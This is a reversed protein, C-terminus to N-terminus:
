FKFNPLDNKTYYKKVAKEPNKQMESDESSKEKDEYSFKLQKNKSSGFLDINPIYFGPGPYNNKSSSFPMDIGTFKDRGIFSDFNYM